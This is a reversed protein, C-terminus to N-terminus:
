KLKVCFRFIDGRVFGHTYEICGQASFAFREIDLVAMGKKLQFYVAEKEGLQAAGFYEEASNPIVSYKERMIDYLAKEEM